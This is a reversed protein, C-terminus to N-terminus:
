YYFRRSFFASFCHLVRQVRHISQNDMESRVTSVQVPVVMLTVLKRLWFGFCPVFVVPFVFRVAIM